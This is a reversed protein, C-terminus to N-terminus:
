DNNLYYRIQMKALNRVFFLRFIIVVFLYLYYSYLSFIKKLFDKVSLEKKIFRKINMGNRQLQYKVAIFLKKMM